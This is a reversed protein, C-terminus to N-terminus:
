AVSSLKAAGGGILGGILMCVLIFILVWTKLMKRVQNVFSHWAYYGFLKM